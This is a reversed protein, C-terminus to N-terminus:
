LYAPKLCLRFGQANQISASYLSATCRHNALLGLLPYVLTSWYQDLTKQQILVWCVRPHKHACTSARVRLKLCLYSPAATAKNPGQGKLHFWYLRSLSASKDNGKLGNTKSKLAFFVYIKLRTLSELFFSSLGLSWKLEIHHSMM